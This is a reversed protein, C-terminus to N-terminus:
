FVHAVRGEGGVDPGEFWLFWGLWSCYIPFRFARALGAAISESDGHHDVFGLWVFWRVADGV